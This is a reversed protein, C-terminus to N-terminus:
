RDAAPIWVTVKFLDGDIYIGFKGGQATIFSQVISLGLGTGGDTRSNDGRKFRETLESPNVNLEVASINKLEICVVRDIQRADLYVRSRPLAYKFVNSLLNEMVRWMLKGDALIPLREPLNVRLDLGSSKIASDLEGIVQNVLSVFDMELLHVELNGSAAKSAEFLEDTLTKLRESKQVLIELYEPAKESTLGEQQLLDAYTIISTLPTRIDHSVNTILETKFRESKMREEVAHHIGASINNISDVISGLEGEEAALKNDWSGAAVERAGQELRYIGRAYRLPLVWLRAVLPFGEWFAQVIRRIVQIMWSSVAFILTHRWFRGAKVRKAFSLLWLLIPAFIAVALLSLVVTWLTVSFDGYFGILWELEQLATACILTWCFLVALGLDLYPRDILAFQVESTARGWRGGAGLLLIVIMALGLLIAAGITAFNWMHAVRVESYLAAQVEVVETPFALYITAGSPWQWGFNSSHSVEWRAAPDVLFYVPNSLFFDRNQRNIGVNSHMIDGDRLYYLLGETNTFDDLLFRFSHLQSDIVGQEIEEREGPTSYSGRIIAAGDHYEVFIEDDYWGWEWDDWSEWRIHEGARILAEDGFSIVQSAQQVAQPMHRSFFYQHASTDAFVVEPRIGTELSRSVIVLGRNLSIVCLAVLSLACIIKVVTLATWGKWKTAM